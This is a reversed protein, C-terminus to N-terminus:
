IVERPDRPWTRRHVHLRSIKEWPFAPGPDMKRGLPMAVEEHGLLRLPVGVASLDGLLEKLAEIQADPFPEWWGRMATGDFYCLDWEVPDPGEYPHLRGGAEFWFTGDASRQLLGRNALEIGVSHHNAGTLTEGSSHPWESIGAHWAERDLSVQQITHGDRCILFHWSARIKGQAWRATGRGSGGATYHILIGDWNGSHPSHNPVHVAEYGKLWGIM